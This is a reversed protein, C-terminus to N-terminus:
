HIYEVERSINDGWDITPPNFNRTVTKGCLDLFQSETYPTKINNISGLVILQGGNAPSITGPTSLDGRVCMISNDIIPTHSGTIRADGNVYVFSGNYLYFKMNAILSGMAYVTSAKPEFHQEFTISGMSKLTLNEVHKINSGYTMNGTSTSLFDVSKMHNGNGSIFLPVTSFVSKKNEGNNNGDILGYPLLAGKNNGKTEVSRTDVLIDTCSELISGPNKCANNTITPATLENLTPFVKETITIISSSSSSAPTVTIDLKMTGKLIATKGDENGTIKFPIYVADIPTGAPLPEMDIQFTGGTEDNVPVIFSDSIGATNDVVKKKENLDNLIASKMIKIAEEKYHADSLGPNDGMYDEIALKVENNKKTVYINNILSQFYSVGMEALAVAQSKKEVVQNQKMSSFSQGTFSLLLVMFITFILLVTVLAYGEENNKLKNM